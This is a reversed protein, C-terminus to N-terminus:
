LGLNIGLSITRAHPHTFFDTGIRLNDAGAYNVEPDMGSYNTFTLLNQGTVFLRASRIRLREATAEKLTYSLTMNKVRLYSGDEMFRSSIRNNNNPDTETVRPVHTQDGPQRWRDVVAISQNDAGKM